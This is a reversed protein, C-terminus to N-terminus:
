EKKVTWTGNIFPDTGGKQVLKWTGSAKAPDFDGDIIIEGQTDLPYDYRGTMKGGSFSITSFNATYDGADTGVVVSGKIAGDGGQEFKINFKGSGGGEWTGSWAGVFQGGPAPDAAQGYGVLGGVGLLAILACSLWRRQM